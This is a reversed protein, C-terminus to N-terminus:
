ATLLKSMKDGAPAKSAIELPRCVASARPDNRAPFHARIRLRFVQRQQRSRARRTLTQIRTAQAKSPAAIPLANFNLHSWGLPKCLASNRAPSIGVQYPRERGPAAGGRIARFARNAHGVIRSRRRPRSHQGLRLVLDRRCGMVASLGIRLAHAEIMRDPDLSKGGGTLPLPWLAQDGKM